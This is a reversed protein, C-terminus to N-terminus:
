CCRRSGAPTMHTDVSQACAEVAGPATGAFITCFRTAALAISDGDFILFFLTRGLTDVRMVQQLSPRVRIVGAANVVPMSLIIRGASGRCARLREEHLSWQRRLRVAIVDCHSASLGRSECVGAAAHDVEKGSTVSIVSVRGAHQVPLRVIGATPTTIVLLLLMEIPAVNKSRWM